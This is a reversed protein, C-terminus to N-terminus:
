HLCQKPFFMASTHSMAVAVFAIDDKMNKNLSFHKFAAKHPFALVFLPMHSMLLRFSVMSVYGCAARIREAFFM